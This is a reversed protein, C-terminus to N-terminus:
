PMMELVVHERPAYPDHLVHVPRGDARMAQARRYIDREVTLSHRVPAGQASYNVEVWCRPDEDEGQWTRAITGSAAIGHILLRLRRRRWRRYNWIGIVPILVFIGGWWAEWLGGAVFFGDSVRAVSPDAPLYDIAVSTGPELHGFRLSESQHERGAEDVFRFAVRFVLRKPVGSNDGVTRNAYVSKLVEGHGPVGALDLRIDREIAWPFAAAVILGSIAVGALISAQWRRAGRLAVARLAEPVTRPPTLRWFAIWDHTTTM